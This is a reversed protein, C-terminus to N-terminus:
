LLNNLCNFTFFLKNRVQIFNSVEKEYNSILKEIESKLYAEKKRLEINEKDIKINNKKLEDHVRHVYDLSFFCFFITIYKYVLVSIYKLCKLTLYLIFYKNVCINYITYM